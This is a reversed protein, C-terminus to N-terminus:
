TFRSSEIDEETVEDPARELTIEPPPGTPTEGPDIDNGGAPKAQWIIVLSLAAIIALGGEAALPGWLGLLIVGVANGLAHWLIAIALWIASRRAFVQLVLVSLSLHLILSFAREVAGLLTLYWPASWYLDLQRQLLSLDETSLNTPLPSGRLAFMQFFTVLVLIGLLIAEIGGHGAGMVLAHRWDRAEKAFWRYAGYRFTEEWLGASLGLVIANFFLNWEPPPSPLTGARFLNTLLINFPIHGLQSLVFTGAGIWWLRWGIQYRQTAWVGLGIALAFMLFGSIPYTFNLIM